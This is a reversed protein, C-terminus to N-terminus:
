CSAVIFFLPCCLLHLCVFSLLYVPVLWDSHGESAIPERRGQMCLSGESFTLLSICFFSPSVGSDNCGVNKRVMLTGQGSQALHGLSKVRVKGPGKAKLRLVFELYMEGKRRRKIKWERAQCLSPFLQLLSLICHQVARATTIVVLCEKM